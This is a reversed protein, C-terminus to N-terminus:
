RRSLRVNALESPGTMTDAIGKAILNIFDYRAQAYEKGFSAAKLSFGLAYWTGGVNVLAVDSVAQDNLGTKHYVPNGEFPKPFFRPKEKSSMNTYMEAASQKSIPGNGSASAYLLEFARCIQVMSILNEYVRGSEPIIQKVKLDMGMTEMIRNVKELGVLEFLNERYGILEGKKRNSNRPRLTYEKLLPKLKPNALIKRAEAETLKGEPLKIGYGALCAGLNKEGLREVIDDSFYNNSKVLIGHIRDRVFKLEGKKENEPVENEIWHYFAMVWPVKIVSAIRFKETENVGVSENADINKVYFRYKKEWNKPVIGAIQRNLAILRPDTLTTIRESLPPAIEGIKNYYSTMDVTMTASKAMNTMKCKLSYLSLAPKSLASFAQRPGADALM